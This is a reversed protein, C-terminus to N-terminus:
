TATLCIMLKETAARAKQAIPNPNVNPSPLEMMPVSPNKNCPPNLLRSQDFM